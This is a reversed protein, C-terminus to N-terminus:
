LEYDIDYFRKIMICKDIRYNKLIEVIRHSADGIGYPNVVEELRKQFDESYMKEFADMIATVRVGCDIVSEAKVRGRQRDGVNITGINFSPAEIIGSSSNGVVADMYKMMSLYKQQGLSSFAKVRNRNRQAYDELLENIKRGGADANAYTFFLNTEDLHDLARLVISFQKSPDRKELTAPHFTVLLNHKNFQVGLEEELQGKSLYRTNKLADVGLAGVTFVRNPHEGMQIVRKRYINTATFHLLSMKTIAHRFSEDMAGETVEGGHIHAIPVRSILAAQAFALAEFRDGLIVTIDPKLRMLVDSYSVLGLGISKAMGTTTDSSLLIEIKEDIRFGDNEIERYTLGFEPSLHMGSVVIQLRLEEQEVRRMLHKLLGYEARTGTFVCIKTRM